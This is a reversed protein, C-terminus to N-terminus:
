PHMREAFTVGMLFGKKFYHCYLLTELDARSKMETTTKMIGAGM